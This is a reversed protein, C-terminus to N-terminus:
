ELRLSYEKALDLILTIDSALLLSKVLFHGTVKYGDKGHFLELFMSLSKPREALSLRTGTLKSAKKNVESKEVSTM